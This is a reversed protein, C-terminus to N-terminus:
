NGTAVRDNEGPRFIKLSIGFSTGDKESKFYGNNRKSSSLTIKPQGWKEYFEKDHKEIDFPNPEYDFSTEYKIGLEKFEKEIHDPWKIITNRELGHFRQGLALLFNFIKDLPFQFLYDEKEYDFAEKPYIGLTCKVNKYKKAFELAKRNSEPNIGTAIIVLNQINVVNDLDRDFWKHDLHSHIDILM